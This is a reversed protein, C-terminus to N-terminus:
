KVEPAQATLGQLINILTDGKIEKLQFFVDHKNDRLVAVIPKGDEYIVGIQDKFVEFKAM